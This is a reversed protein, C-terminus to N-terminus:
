KRYHCAEEAGVTDTPERVLGQSGLEGQVQRDGCRVDEALGTDEGSVPGDGNYSAVGADGPLEELGGYDRPEGGGTDVYEQEADERGRTDGVEGVGEVGVEADDEGRAV